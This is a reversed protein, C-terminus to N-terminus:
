REAEGKITEREHALQSKPFEREHQRVLELAAQPDSGLKQRAKLLLLGERPSPPAPAIPAPEVTAISHPAVSQIPLTRPSPHYTSREQAITIPEDPAIDPMRSAWAVAGVTLATAGFFWALIKKKFLLSVFGTGAVSARIRRVAADDLTDKRAAGLLADLDLDNV